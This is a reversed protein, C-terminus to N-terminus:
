IRWIINTNYQFVGIIAYRKNRSLIKIEYYGAYKKWLCTHKYILTKYLYTKENFYFCENM